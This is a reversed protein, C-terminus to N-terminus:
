LVKVFLSACKWCLKGCIQPLRLVVALHSPRDDKTKQRRDEKDGMLCGHELSAHCVVCLSPRDWRGPVCAANSRNRYKRRWWWAIRRTVRPYCVALSTCCPWRPAM